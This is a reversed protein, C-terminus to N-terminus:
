GFLLFELLEGLGDFSEFLIEIVVTSYYSASISYISSPAYSLAAASVSAVDLVGVVCIFVIVVM